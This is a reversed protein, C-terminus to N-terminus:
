KEQTQREIAMTDALKSLHNKAETDKPAYKQRYSEAMKISEECLVPKFSAEEDQKKRGNGARKAKRNVAFLQYEGAIRGVERASFAEQKSEPSALALGLVAGMHRMLLDRGALEKDATKLSTWLREVLTEAEGRIEEPTFRMAKLISKVEEKNFNPKNLGLSLVTANFEKTFRQLLMPDSTPKKPGKPKKQKQRREAEERKKVALEYLRLEKCDESPAVKRKSRREQMEKEKREEEKQTQHQKKAMEYLRDHIPENSRKNEVLLSSNKNVKPRGVIKEEPAPKAAEKKKAFVEQDELFKSLSRPKEAAQAVQPAFSCEKVEKDACAKRLLEQKQQVRSM